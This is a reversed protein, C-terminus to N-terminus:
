FLPRKAPIGTRRPYRDSCLDRARLVVYHFGRAAVFESVELGLLALPEAPWRDPATVSSEGAAAAADLPPESVILHGGVALFPAACEAVVAPRGFSRAVVLRYSQRHALSRGVVEAREGIVEAVGSMGLLAVAERLWQARRESGDLLVIKPPPPDALAALVLGPVGGGSGLDFVAGGAGGTAVGGTTAGGTAWDNAVGNARLVAMVDAFGLAHEVHRVVAQDSLFGRARAEDLVEFLKEERGPV